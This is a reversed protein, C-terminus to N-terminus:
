HIIQVIDKDKQLQLGSTNLRECVWVSSLKSNMGCCMPAKVSSFYSFIFFYKIFTNIFAWEVQQYPM